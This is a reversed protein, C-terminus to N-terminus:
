VTSDQYMVIPHRDGHAEKLAANINRVVTTSPYTEGDTILVGKRVFVSARYVMSRHTIVDLSHEDYHTHLIHKLVGYASPPLWYLVGPVKGEEASSICISPPNGGFFYIHGPLFAPEPFEINDSYLRECMKSYNWSGYMFVPFKQLDADFAQASAGPQAFLAPNLAITGDGHDWTPSDPACPPSELCPAPVSFVEPWTRRRSPTVARAPSFLRQAGTFQSVHAASRAPVLMQNSAISPTAHSSPVLARTHNKRVIPVADEPETCGSIAERLDDEKMNCRIECKNKRKLELCKKQLDGYKVASPM